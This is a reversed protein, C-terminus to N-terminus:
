FTQRELKKYLRHGIEFVIIGVIGIFIGFLLSYGTRALGLYLPSRIHMFTNAPSTMGIVAALGFLIPWLKFRRVSVYVFMMVSPFAFLFEKNRPRAILHDELMNRFLMELNSVEVSSENGTRSIYYYGLILLCSGLLVMWVKISANMMDRLDLYELSGPHKKSGGFGYYALYAAAFFALPLLQAAKVGRFIDIELLYNISSIPAATMIGGIVSIAIGIFLTAIGLGALKVLPTEKDLQETYERSQKVIYAIALCPFIVAAAFSTILEAYSPLVLFAGSAGLAGLVLLSLKVRRRMPFITQLLLIAAAVCGYAIALKLIRSVQYDDMVSAKDGFQIGHENLREELNSFMTRYEEPDTVYVHQDRFEKIPKYYILRINREVVARFLTNEIEKAGEYGYYQYRNQIYDWVSFIRVADYGTKKVTEDVGFQLINQRQTTNEILGLTVNNEELYNKVTDIGDDYGIISEGGVIMYEPAVGMKKYSNIVAREYDADNWGEYSATRPIIDMGAAKVIDLKSPLIGLNLYMLKSSIIEDKETFGKKSISSMYKYKETYLTEKATGDLVILGGNDSEYAFYKEAQYRDSVANTVFDFAEKSAAEILVDYEDFGNDKLEEIFGEPYKAEWDAEKMIQYMIEASVPMDTNEMLSVMNEEALGVKTIGMGKFEELWWSVDHDSQKAMAEVENYDLVIDYTKNQSEVSIRGGIAVFSVLVALAVILLLVKNERILLKM